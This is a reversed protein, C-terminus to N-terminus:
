EDFCIYFITKGGDFIGRREDFPNVIKSPDPTLNDKPAIFNKNRLPGSSAFYVTLPNINNTCVLWDLKKNYQLVLEELQNNSCNLKKLNAFKEIGDLVSINKNSCDIAQVRKAESLSILGDKNKDFNELLYAKFNVDPIEIFVKSEEDACAALFFLVPLISIFLNLKKM